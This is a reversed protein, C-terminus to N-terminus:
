AGEELGTMGIDPWDEVAPGNGIEVGATGVYESREEVERPASLSIVPHPPLSPGHCIGEKLRNPSEM